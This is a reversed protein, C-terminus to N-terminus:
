TYELTSFYYLTNKEKQFLPVIMWMSYNVKTVYLLYNECNLQNQPFSTWLFKNSKYENTHLEVSLQTQAATIAMGLLCNVFKLISPGSEDETWGAAAHRHSTWDLGLNSFTFKFRQRKTLCQTVTRDIYELDTTCLLCYQELNTTPTALPHSTHQTTPIKFMHSWYNTFMLSVLMETHGVKLTSWIKMVATSVTSYSALYCLVHTPM